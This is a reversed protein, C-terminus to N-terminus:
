PIPEMSSKRCGALKWNGELLKIQRALEVTEPLPDVGIEDRLAQVAEDFVKLAAARQGLTALCRMLLRYATENVNDLTLLERCHIIAQQFRGNKGYAEALNVLL